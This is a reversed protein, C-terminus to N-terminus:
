ELRRRQALPLAPKAALVQNSPGAWQIPGRVERVHAILVRRRLARREQVHVFQHRQCQAKQRSLRFLVQREICANPCVSTQWHEVLEIADRIETAM